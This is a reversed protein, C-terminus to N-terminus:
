QLKKKKTKKEKQLYRKEKRKRVSWHIGLLTSFICGKFTCFIIITNRTFRSFFIRFIKWAVKEDYSIKEMHFTLNTWLLFSWVNYNYSKIFEFIIPSFFANIKKFCKSFMSCVKFCIINNLYIKKKECVIWYLRCFFLFFLLFLFCHFCM